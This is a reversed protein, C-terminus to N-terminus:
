FDLLSKQGKPIRKLVRQAEISDQGIQVLLQRKGILHLARDYNVRTDIVQTDYFAAWEAAFEKKDFKKDIATENGPNITSVLPPLFGSAFDIGAPLSFLHLGGRMLLDVLFGPQVPHQQVMERAVRSAISGPPISLCGERRTENWTLVHFSPYRQKFHLGVMDCVVHESKYSGVLLLGIPIFRTYGKIKYAEIEVARAKQLLAPHNLRFEDLTSIASSIPEFHQQPYRLMTVHRRAHSIVMDVTRGTM